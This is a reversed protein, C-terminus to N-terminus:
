THPKGNKSIAVKILENCIPCLIEKKIYKRKSYFSSGCNPCKVLLVKKSLKEYKKANM